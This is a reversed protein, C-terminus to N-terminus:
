WALALDSTLTSVVEAATAAALETNIQETVASTIQTNLNESIVSQTSSTIADEVNANITQELAQSTQAAADLATINQVNAIEQLSLQQTIQSTNAFSTASDLTPNLAVNEPAPMAESPMTAESGVEPEEPAASEALAPFEASTVQTLSQSLSSATDLASINEVNAMEQLPFQESPQLTPQQSPQLSLQQTLQSTNVFSTASDLTPNVAVNEPTPMAESPVAAESGIESNEPTNSEALAPFEASTVQTLSQALTAATASTVNINKGADNSLRTILQSNNDFAQATGVNATNNSSQATSESPASEATNEAANEVTNEEKSNAKVQTDSQASTDSQTSIQTANDSSDVQQSAQTQQNINTSQSIEFDAAQTISVWCSVGSLVLVQAIKNLTTM